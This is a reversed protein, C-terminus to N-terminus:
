PICAGSPTQVTQTLTETGVQVTVVVTVAQSCGPRALEVDFQRTGGALIYWANVTQSFLPKADRDFGEVKILDPVLHVNGANRLVFSARGGAARVADLTPKAAGTAPQVFIPISMKTLVKVAGPTAEAQSAPLEEVFLRYSREVAGAGQSLGLRVRREEKPALTLLRPFFLVDETPALKMEGTPAQDWAHLTLQFRLTESSENRLSVLASTVKASLYVQTPNVSFAAAHALGAQGLALGTLLACVAPAFSAVREHRSV